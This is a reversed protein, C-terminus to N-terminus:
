RLASFRDYEWVANWRIGLSDDWPLHIMRPSEFVELYVSYLIPDGESAPKFDNYGFSFSAREFNYGLNANIDLVRSLGAKPVLIVECKSSESEQHCIYYENTLTQGTVLFLYKPKAKPFIKNAYM